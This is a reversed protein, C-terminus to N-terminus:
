SRTAVGTTKLMRPMQVPEYDTNSGIEIAEVAVDSRCVLGEAIFNQTETLISYIGQSSGRTVSILELRSGRFCRSALLSRKEESQLGLLFLFQLQALGDGGIKLLGKDSESLEFGLCQVCDRVHSNIWHQEPKVTIAAYSIVGISDFIGALYGRSREFDDKTISGLTDEKRNAAEYGVKWQDTIEPPSFSNGVGRIFHGERLLLARSYDTDVGPRAPTKWVKGNRMRDTWFKQARDCIIRTGDKFIFRFTNISSSEHAPVLTATLGIVRAVSLSNTLGNDEKSYGLILEGEKVQSIPKVTWDAMLVRSAASVGM